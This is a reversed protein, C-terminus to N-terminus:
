SKRVRLQNSEAFSVMRDLPLVAREAIEPDVLVENTGERLSWELDELVNMGMWPCHACSRCTAGSGATPAEIFIKDPASIRMKHFIGKDTAVIFKENPLE